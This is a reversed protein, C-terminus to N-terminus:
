FFFFVKVKCFHQWFIWLKMQCIQHTLKQWKDNLCWECLSFLCVIFLVFSLFFFGKFICLLSFIFVCPFKLDNSLRSMILFVLDLILSVILLVTFFPLCLQWNRCRHVHNCYIMMMHSFVCAPRLNHNAATVAHPIFLTLFYVFVLNNEKQWFCHFTLTWNLFSSWWFHRGQLIDRDFAM